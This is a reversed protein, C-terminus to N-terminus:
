SKGALRGLRALLTGLDPEILFLPDAHARLLAENIRGIQDLASRLELTAAHAQDAAAFISPALAQRVEIAREARMQLVATRIPTLKAVLQAKEADLEVMLRDTADHNGDVRGRQAARMADGIANVRAKLGRLEAEAAQLRASARVSKAIMAPSQATPTGDFM